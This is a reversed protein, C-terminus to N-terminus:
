RADVLTYQFRSQGGLTQWFRNFEDPPMTQCGASGVSNYGGRHFLISRGAGTRDLADGKGDADTDRMVPTTSTPRLVKGLRSSHGKAFEYTGAKLSATDRVGDGNMDRGYRGRNSLTSEMNARFERVQPNGAQDKWIVAMKDDYANKSQDEDRVGVVSKKGPTQDVTGGSKEILQKYYDYKQSQNMGATQNVGDVTTPNSAVIKGTSPLGRSDRLVNMANGYLRDRDAKGNYGGNISKTIGNFDGAEAKQNLGRSNWYWAAVRAANEDKAALGPNNVLDLGLAKGAAEYNARGTLQIFGRGKFRRGDGPQTNGLDRRGEYAAGSAIEENYRFGGSEHMLQAVFAAKKKPTDINAEAMARNLHPAVQAARSGSLKHGSSGAIQQLQQPSVDGKGPQWNRTDIPATKALPSGNSRPSQAKNRGRGGSTGRPGVNYGRDKAARGLMLAMLLDMDMMGNPPFGMQGKLDAISRRGAASNLGGAMPYGLGQMAQKVMQQLANPQGAGLLSRVMNQFTAAVVAAAVVQQAIQAQMMAGGAMAQARAANQVAASVPAKACCGGPTLGVSQQPSVAPANGLGTQVGGGLGVNITTINFSNITSM